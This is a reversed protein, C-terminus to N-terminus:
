SGAAPIEEFDQLLGLPVGSQRAQELLTPHNAEAEELQTQAREYAALLREREEGRPYRRSRMRSVDSELDATIKRLSRVKQASEELTAIWTSWDEQTELTEEPAQAGATPPSGAPGAVALLLSGIGAVVCRHITKRM